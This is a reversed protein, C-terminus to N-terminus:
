QGSSNASNNAFERFRFFESLRYGQYRGLFILIGIISFLLEPHTLLIVPLVKYQFVFFGVIAIFLTGSLSKLTNKPGEEILMLSLREIFVTIIVLPFASLSKMQLVNLNQGVLAFCVILVVVMTLLISLRPVALLHLRYLLYRGFFGLCVVTFMLGLGWTLGIAKLFFTLLVPAFIGFTPVGIINRFFSLILAGIPLLLLGMFLAQLGAPLRYLSFLSLFYNKKKLDEFYDKKNFSNVLVPTAYIRLNGLNDLFIERFKSVNKALVLYGPPREGFSKREIDVAVWKSNLFIENSFTVPFSTDNNNGKRKRLFVGAVTRAPIGSRRALLTFLQARSVVSGAGNFIVEHFDNFRESHRIEETLYYYLKRAATSKNFEDYVIAKELGEIALRDEEQLKLMKLFPRFRKPYNKTRDNELDEYKKPIIKVQGRFTLVDDDDLPGNWVVRNGDYDRVIRQSSKNPSIRTNKLVLLSSSRPIPLAIERDNLDQNLELNIQVNWQNSIDAPIFSLQLAYVKYLIFIIPALFFFLAGFHVKFKM